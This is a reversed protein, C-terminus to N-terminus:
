GLVQFASNHDEIINEPLVKSSHSLLKNKSIQWYRQHHIHPLTKEFVNNLVPLHHYAILVMSYHRRDYLVKLKSDDRLILEDNLKSFDCLVHVKNNLALDVADTPFANM